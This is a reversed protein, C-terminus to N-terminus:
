DIEKATVEIKQPYEGEQDILGVAGKKSQFMVARTLDATTRYSQEHAAYRGKKNKVVWKTAM